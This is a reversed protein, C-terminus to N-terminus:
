GASRIARGRRGARSVRRPAAPMLSGYAFLPSHSWARRAGSSAVRVEWSPPGDMRIRCDLTGRGRGLREVPFFTPSWHTGTRTRLTVGPALTIEVWVAVGDVRALDPVAWRGRQEGWGARIGAKRLDVRVLRVAPAVTRLAGGYIVRACHVTLDRFPQLDLGRGRVAADARLKVPEAWLALAQPVIRGGRRLFRARADAMVPVIQEDFGLHGVLEAVVVDFRGPLRVQRSEGHVVQVRDAVGNARALREILPVLVGEREIAVVRSAGLRAAEVAWIGTGSGIDLVACGPRIASRLARRFARQRRADALFAEHMLLLDQVRAPGKLRV